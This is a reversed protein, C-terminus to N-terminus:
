KPLCVPRISTSFPRDPESVHSMPGRDQQLADSLILAVEDELVKQSSGRLEGDLDEAFWDIRENELEDEFKAFIAGRLLSLTARAASFPSVSLAHITEECGSNLSVM